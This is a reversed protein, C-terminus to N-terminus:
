RSQGNLIPSWTLKAGSSCAVPQDHDENSLTLNFGPSLPMTVRM